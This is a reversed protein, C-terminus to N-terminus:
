FCHWGSNIWMALAISSGATCTAGGAGATCSSCAALGVSGTAPTPLSAFPYVTLGLVSANVKVTGPLSTGTGATLTLNGGTALNDCSGEAQVQAGSAAGSTSGGATVYASGGCSNSGSGGGEAGRIQIGIGSIGSYSKVSMKWGVSDLVSGNSGPDFTIRSHDIAYNNFQSGTGSQINTIFTSTNNTITSNGLASSSTWLPITNTTGSGTVGGGGGAATITTHGASNSLTINTGAVLDLLSQSSNTVGNTQLLISSGGGGIIAWGGGNCLSLQCIRTTGDIVNTYIAGYGGFAYIDGYARYVTPAVNVNPIPLIPNIISSINQNAGTVTVDIVGCNGTSSNPCITFTWKSGAPAVALNDDLTVTMVGLGSAVGTQNPTILNGNNNPQYPNGFPPKFSAQWLANRWLQGSSDQLVATVNTMVPAQAMLSIASLLLSCVIWFKKM